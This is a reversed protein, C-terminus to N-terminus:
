EQIPPLVPVVQVQATVHQKVPQITKLIETIGLLMSAQTTDISAVKAQLSTLELVRQLLDDLRTELHARYNDIDGRLISQTTDSRPTHRHRPNPSAPNGHRQNTSPPDRSHISQSIDTSRRSPTTTHAMPPAVTSADDANPNHPNSIERQEEFLTTVDDDSDTNITM